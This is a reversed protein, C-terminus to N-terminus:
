SYMTEPSKPPAAGFLRQMKWVIYLHCKYDERIADMLVNKTLGEFHLPRIFQITKLDDLNPLMNFDSNRFLLDFRMDWLIDDREKKSKSKLGEYHEESLSVGSIILILDDRPKPQIIDAPRGSGQPFEIKYHYNANDDPVKDRYVGEETLWAQVKRMVEDMEQKTM